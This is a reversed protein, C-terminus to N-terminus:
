LWSSRIPPGGTSCVMCASKGSKETPFVEVSINARVELVIAGTLTMGTGAVHARVGDMARGVTLFGFVRVNQGIKGDLRPRAPAGHRERRANVRSRDMPSTYRGCQCVGADTADRPVRRAAISGRADRPRLVARRGGRRDANRSERICVGDRERKADCTAASRAVM